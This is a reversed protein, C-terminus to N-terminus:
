ATGKKQFAAVAQEKTDVIDCIRHLRIFDFVTRVPRSVQCIRLDGGKETTAKLCSLIAGCGRSDAFQVKGLDLVLKNHEALVPAVAQRFDDANSADLQAENVTVVAVDGFTEVLMNMKTGRCPVRRKVLRVGHRGPPGHIYCVSDCTQGILYHGFGSQRSGDFVPPPIAAPDFDRGDHWLTLRCGEGDAEIELSIAGGPERNYAHLVINAAAEQLALELQELMEDNCDCGWARVCCERALQRMAALQDVDSTFERNVRVM